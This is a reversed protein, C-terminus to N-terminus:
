KICRKQHRYQKWISLNMQTIWQKQRIETHKIKTFLQNTPSQSSIFRLAQQEFFSRCFIIIIIFLL